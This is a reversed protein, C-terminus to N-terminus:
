PEVTITGVMGQAEHPICILKFTGATDFSFGFTFTEGADLSRDIGLDNVTFTHFETESTLTFNAVDGVKFTHESPGFKYEGSGGPDELVVAVPKGGEVPAADGGGDAENVSGPAMLSAATAVMSAPAAAPPPPSARSPQPAPEETSSCAGLALSLVALVVVLLGARRCRTIAVPLTATLVM